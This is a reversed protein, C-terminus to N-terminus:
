VASRRRKVLVVLGGLGTLLLWFGAPLPIASVDTAGLVQVSGAGAGANVGDFVLIAFGNAYSGMVTSIVGLDLAAAVLMVGAGFSQATFFGSMLTGSADSLLFGGLPGDPPGFDFFSASFTLGPLSAPGAGPGPTFTGTVPGATGSVFEQPLVPPSGPDFTTSLSGLVVSPPDIATLGGISVAEAREPATVLAVAALAASLIFKQLQM